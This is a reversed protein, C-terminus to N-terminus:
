YKPTFYEAGLHTQPSSMASAVSPYPRMNRGPSAYHLSESISHRGLGHSSAGPSPYAASVTTAIGPSRMERFATGSESPARSHSRHTHTPAYTYQSATLTLRGESPVVSRTTRSFHSYIGSMGSLTPTPPITQIMPPPSSMAPSATFSM